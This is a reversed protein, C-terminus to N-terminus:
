RPSIFRFRGGDVKILFASREDYGNHDTPSMTSLGNNLYVNKGRELADRLALRFEPTGPKAAKLANPAARKLLAIADWLHAAFINPKQGNVKEYSSAFEDRV